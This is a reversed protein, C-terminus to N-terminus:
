ERQAGLHRFLKLLTYQVLLTVLLLAYLETGTEGYSPRYFTGIMWGSLGALVMFFSHSYRDFDQLGKPSWVDLYSYEDGFRKGVEYALYWTFPFFIISGVIRFLVPLEM